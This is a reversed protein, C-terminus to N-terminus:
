GKFLSTGKRVQRCTQCIWDIDEQSDPDFGVCTCHFWEECKDCQVMPKGDYPQQCICYLKKARTKKKKKPSPPTLPPKAATKSRTIRKEEQIVPQKILSDPAIFGTETGQLSNQLLGWDDKYFNDTHNSLLDNLPSHWEEANDQPQTIQETSLLNTATQDQLDLYDDINHIDM